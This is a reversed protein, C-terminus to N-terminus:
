YILLICYLLKMRIIKFQKFPLYMYCQDYLSFDSGIVVRAM